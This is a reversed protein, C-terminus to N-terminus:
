CQSLLWDLPMGKLKGKFYALAALVEEKDKETLQYVYESEDQFTDSTWILPGHLQAPWGRPVERERDNRTLSAQTREEFAQKDVDYGISAYTKTSPEANHLGPLKLADLQFRARLGQSYDAQICNTSSSVAVLSYISSELCSLLSISIRV